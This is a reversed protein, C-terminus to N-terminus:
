SEGGKMYATAPLATGKTTEEYVNVFVDALEFSKRALKKYDDPATSCLDKVYLYKAIELRLQGLEKSQM